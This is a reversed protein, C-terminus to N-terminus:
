QNKNSNDVKFSPTIYDKPLYDNPITSMNGDRVAHYHPSMIEIGAENCSDQINQHLESYIVAQKNPERTYANIQYSVFFDDLSTQLVFPKPDDLIDATKQAAAILAEHMAKWPVAYGITVTTHLILGKEVADSSYNIVHNSMVNSNPISIIENKITRIRTVLLSKEIVDGTVADIKVRDGIKFARMYTLILGAIINSLSGSSGFTFVVGLFVSVGRFVPSESGPLYPFIVILMFAYILVRIIEFTPKAWDPYFGPLMLAGNEVEDKLYSIGKLLYRFVTVIVIITILNPIYHWVGFFIKRLPSLFYAIFTDSFGKTWPFISFLIPLALYVAIIIVVWKLITNVSLLANIIKNADLLEYNRIRVGHIRKGNQIKIKKGTFVFLKNVVFIILALTALVLLALAIEQIITKWSTAKKYKIIENAILSKYHKALYEKSNSQWLADNESISIIISEGYVLDITNENVISTLSDSNFFYDDALGKIRKTIAASRNLPSLSGSRTYILFLTDNFFPAVPYGTIYFRLSDIKQRKTAIRESDNNKIRNIEKLLDAKKIDDSSKLSSIQKELSAKKISDQLQMREYNEHQVKEYQLLVNQLSDQVRSNTDVQAFLPPVIAFLLWTVLLLIRKM